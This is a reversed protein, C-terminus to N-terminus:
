AERKVSRMLLVTPAAPGFKPTGKPERIAGLFRGDDYLPYRLAASRQQRLRARAREIRAVIEIAPDVLRAVTM